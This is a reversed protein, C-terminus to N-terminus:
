LALSASAVQAKVLLLICRSVPQEASDLMPTTRHPANSDEFRRSISEVNQQQNHLRANQQPQPQHLQQTSISQGRKRVIDASSSSSLQSSATSLNSFSESSAAYNSSTPVARLHTKKPEPPNGDESTSHYQSVKQDSLSSPISSLSANAATSKTTSTDQERSPPGSPAVGHRNKEQEREKRIQARLETYTGSGGQSARSHSRL